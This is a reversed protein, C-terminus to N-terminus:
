DGRRQIVAVPDMRGLRWALGVASAIASLVPVVVSYLLPDPDLVEVLIGRPEFVLRTYLAVVGVGMLLGLLWGLTATLCTEVTLKRVLRSRRHGVALYLAFEDARAQFHILNLLATVLAVIVAVAASIFGLLLPLNEMSKEVRARVFATLRTHLPTTAAHKPHPAVAVHHEAVAALLAERSPFHQGISRLAVGARKAIRAATPAPDGARVLDYLAAVIAARTRM